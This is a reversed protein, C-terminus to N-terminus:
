RPLSRSPTSERTSCAGALSFSSFFSLFSYLFFARAISFSFHTRACISSSFFKLARKELRAAGRAPSARAFLSPLLLVVMAREALARRRPAQSAARGRLRSERDGAANTKKAKAKSSRWGGLRCPSEM